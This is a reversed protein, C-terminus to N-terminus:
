RHGQYDTVLEKPRLEAGGSWNGVHGRCRGPEGPEGRDEEM